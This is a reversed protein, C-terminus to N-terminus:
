KIELLLKHVHSSGNQLAVHTSTFRVLMDLDANTYAQNEAIHLTSMLRVTPLRRTCSITMKFSIGDFMKADM